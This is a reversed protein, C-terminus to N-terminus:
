QVIFSTIYVNRVRRGPVVERLRALVEEKVNRMGESGRLEDATRDALYGIISDRIRPMYNAVTDKDKEDPEDAGRGAAALLSLLVAAFAVSALPKRM